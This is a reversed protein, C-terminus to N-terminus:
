YDSEWEQTDGLDMRLDMVARSPLLTPTSITNEVVRHGGVIADPALWDVRSVYNQQILILYEL